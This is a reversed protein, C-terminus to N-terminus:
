ADALPLLVTMVTELASGQRAAYTLAADSMQRQIQPNAVLGKLCHALDPGDIAEIAAVADLMEGFLEAANFVHPGTVVPVGQRAPELPNHGGIGPFFSGGMVALDAWAYLLGMEGLTDALYVQHGSTLTEGTSRRCVKLGIGLLAAVIDSGREPHRPAIVMLAGLDAAAQCILVEEGPHTNSALLVLRDSSASKLTKLEAPDFSLPDGLRKLNAHPGINAGLESLRRATASDQPLVTVFSGLLRRAASPWRGWGRASKETMRASALVLQVGRGQAGLILNPWLESEVLVGVKPKWHELFRKVAGPTDVPAYQYIVGEPLRRALLEASTRTGSTVLLTLDPRAQKLALVLPLLSQSEGVSVGHLWVLHGDPRSLTPCGFREGIRVPDEKGRKARGRLISPVAPELLGTVVRYLGLLMGLGNRGTLASM